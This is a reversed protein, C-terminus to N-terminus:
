AKRSTRWLDNLSEMLAASPTRQELGRRLLHGAHEQFQPWWSARPRVWAAEIAPLTASFFGGASRDAAPDRWASATGPQGDNGAIVTRQTDPEALWSMYAVAADVNKAGASLAVGAGGLIAARPVGDPSPAPAFAIPKGGDAPKTFIRYGFTLPMFDIEDTEAMRRLARPPNLALADQHLDPLIAALYAIAERGPEVACGDSDEELTAGSSVYFTLFSCICDTPYMPWAVRGPSFRALAAVERWTRPPNSLLDPRAASVHCAADTALGWQRGNRFYSRHSAGASDAALRDLLGADLLTDLPRLLGDREATGVYPHDVVLIDFRDILEALPQDNFQELPRATWEVKVGPNRKEWAEASARMPIMCRPHDWGLARVVASM